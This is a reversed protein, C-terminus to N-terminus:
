IKRENKMLKKMNGILTALIISHNLHSTSKENKDDLQCVTFHMSSSKITVLVKM